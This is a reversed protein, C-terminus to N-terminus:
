WAKRFKDRFTAAIWGKKTTKVGKKLPVSMACDLVPPGRGSDSELTITTM